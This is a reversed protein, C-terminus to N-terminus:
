PLFFAALLGQHISIGDELCTGAGLRIPSQGYRIVGQPLSFETSQNALIFDVREGGLTQTPDAGGSGCPSPNPNVIPFHFHQSLSISESHFVFCLLHGSNTGEQESIKPGELCQHETLILM